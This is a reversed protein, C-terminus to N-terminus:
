DSDPAVPPKALQVEDIVNGGQAIQRLTLKDGDITVHTFSHQQGDGFAFYAPRKAPPQLEYLQAGGAGTVIYIVGSAGSAAEEPSVIEGGRLPYTRQYNHDHGNFVIDVGAAEIAPVLARQVRLDPAHKGGTYPPHHFAVFKWRPGPASMAALLWPAVREKLTTEDADSDIVVFRSSAYDFWYNYGPRLGEPGNHPLEFVEEYAAASGDKAVDHNGLCPWFNVRPLLHRYPVFFREGYLRREGSPYVLDGTHVLFDPPPQLCAMDAALSYQAQSARGSDGFVVFGYRQKATGNTQFALGDSLKRRGAQIRYPYTTAPQLGDIRVLQRRGVANANFVREVGDITVNVSCTAPRTTFWVLSVADGSALQVMPGENIRVPLIWPAVAYMGAAVVILVVVWLLVVRPAAAALRQFAVSRRCTM